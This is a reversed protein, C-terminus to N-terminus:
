KVYLPLAENWSLTKSQETVQVVVQDLKIEVCLEQPENDPLGSALAAM